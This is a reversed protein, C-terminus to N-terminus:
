FLRQLANHILLLGALLLTLGIAHKLLPTQLWTRWKAAGASLALM